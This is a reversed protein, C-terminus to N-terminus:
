IQYHVTHPVDGSYSYCYNKNEDNDSNNNNYCDNDNNDGSLLSKWNIIQKYM